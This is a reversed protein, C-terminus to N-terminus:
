AFAATTDISTRCRVALGLGRREEGESLAEDVGGRRRREEERYLRGGALRKNFIKVSSEPNLKEVREEQKEAM